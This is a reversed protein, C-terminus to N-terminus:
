TPLASPSLLGARKYDQSLVRIAAQPADQPLDVLGIAAGPAHRHVANIVREFLAVHEPERFGGGLLICDYTARALQATVPVETSGNLPLKCLDLHDGQDAFQKQVNTLIAFFAEAAKDARANPASDATDESVLGILLFSNM